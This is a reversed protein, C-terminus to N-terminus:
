GIRVEKGEAASRYMADLTAMVNLVEEKKVILEEEGRLVRIFHATEAWHGAFVVGRDAPVHLILDAQYRGERTVLTLPDMSLGGQDGLITAHM